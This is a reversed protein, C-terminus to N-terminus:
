NIALRKSQSVRRQAEDVLDDPVDAGLELRDGLGADVVAQVKNEYDFMTSKIERDAEVTHRLRIAATRVKVATAIDIQAQSYMRAM